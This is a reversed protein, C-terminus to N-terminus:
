PRLTGQGWTQPFHRQRRAPTVAKGNSHLNKIIFHM